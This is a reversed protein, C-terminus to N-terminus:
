KILYFVGLSSYAGIAFSVIGAVGLVVTVWLWPMHRFLKTERDYSQNLLSFQTFYSTFFTLCGATLGVVFFGVPHAANPVQQGRSAVQGLFALLAVVAGGNLLVVCKMAELAIAIMSRYTELRHDDEHSM